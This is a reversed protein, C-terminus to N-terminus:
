SQDPFAGRQRSGGSPWTKQPRKGPPRSLGWALFPGRGRYAPHDACSDLAPWNERANPGFRDQNPGFTRSFQGSFAQSSVEPAARRCPVGRPRAWCRSGDSRFEM